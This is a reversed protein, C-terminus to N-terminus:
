GVGTRNSRLRIRAPDRDFYPGNMVAVNHGNAIAVNRGNASAMPGSESQSGAPDHGGASDCGSAAVIPGPESWNVAIVLPSNASFFM